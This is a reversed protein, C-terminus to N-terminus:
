EENKGGTNDNGEDAGIDGPKKVTMEIGYKEELEKIKKLERARQEVTEEWDDGRGALTDSLTTILNEIDNQAAKSEKLPDVWAWGPPVWSVNLYDDKRLGYDPAEIIETVVCDSIFNEWVPICLHNIIYRQYIRFAIYAQLLVTRANSYNLGAWDNAFIEYPVDIANAATLLIQKTFEGFQNQPQNPSFATIEEGPNLYKVMGPEFKTILQGSDNSPKQQAIGYAHPRKVFAALCAGARAAVMVAERYRAIDHIDGLGAAFPTYGRSQGPRLIDYLHFVKQLENSGYATIEEYDNIKAITQISTSGPHRKLVFYRVPVGEDDFEIGNRIKPNSVEKPPTSLRDIEIVELALPIIRGNRNSSRAVVLCEGDSIMARFALSQLEEITTRLDSSAKKGWKRYNKEAQYNFRKATDETIKRSGQPTDYPGDEKVRAQPRIGQGIINNTIRRIPGAILGNRHSLDRVMNRLAQGNVGLAADADQTINTWDSRLRSNTIAEFSREERDPGSLAKFMLHASYRRLAYNPAIYSIVRDIFGPGKDNM